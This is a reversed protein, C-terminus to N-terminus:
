LQAFCTCRRDPTVSKCIYTMEQKWQQPALNSRQVVSIQPLLKDLLTVAKVGLARRMIQISKRQLGIKVLYVVEIYLGDATYITAVFANCYATHVVAKRDSLDSLVSYIIIEPSISSKV